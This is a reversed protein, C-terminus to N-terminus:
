LIKRIIRSFVTSTWVGLVPFSEYKITCLTTGTVYFCQKQSLFTRDLHAADKDSNKTCYEVSDM